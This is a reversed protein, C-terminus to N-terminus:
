KRHGFANSHELREFCNYALLSIKAIADEALQRDANWSTMASVVFPRDKLLVIGIDNFVGGVSGGKHAVTVGGPLDSSIRGRKPFSLIRLFESRSEENLIEGNYIMELFRAAEAPTSINERGALRAERDMMIRQLRTEPFRFEDLMRNVSEMGVLDILMNTATNDSLVIMFMAIDRIPMSLKGPTLGNFIGSGGVFDSREVTVVDDLSFEGREAQLLVEALIQVKISSAQTLVLDPNHSFTYGTKLDKVVIGFVGDVEEAAALASKEFQGLLVKEPTSEAMASATIFSIFLSTLLLKMGSIM